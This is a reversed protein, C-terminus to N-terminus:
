FIWWNINLKIFHRLHYHWFCFHFFYNIIIRFCYTNIIYRFFLFSKILFNLKKFLDHFYSFLIHTILWLFTLNLLSILYDELFLYYSRIKTIFLLILFILNLIHFKIILMLFLFSQLFNQFFLIPGFQDLLIIKRRQYHYYLM